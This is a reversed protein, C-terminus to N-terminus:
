FLKKTVGAGFATFIWDVPVGATVKVAFQKVEKPAVFYKRKDLRPDDLDFGLKSPPPYM